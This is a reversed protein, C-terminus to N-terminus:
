QAPDIFQEGAKQFGQMWEMGKAMLNGAIAKGKAEIGTADPPIEVLGKAEEVTKTATGMPDKLCDMSKYGMGLMVAFATQM